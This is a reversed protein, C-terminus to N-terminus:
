SAKKEGTRLKTEQRKGKKKEARKSQSGKAKCPGEPQRSFNAFALFPGQNIKPV